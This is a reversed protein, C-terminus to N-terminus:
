QLWTNDKTSSDFVPFLYSTDRFGVASFSSNLSSSSSFLSIFYISCVPYNFLSILNRIILLIYSIYNRMFAFVQSVEHDIIYNLVMLLSSPTFSNSASCSPIFLFHHQCCVHNLTYHAQLHFHFTFNQFSLSFNHFLPDLFVINHFRSFLKLSHAVM